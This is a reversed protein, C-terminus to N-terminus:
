HMLPSQWIFGETKCTYCPQPSTGLDEFIIYGAGNCNICSEKKYGRKILRDEADLKDALEKANMYM